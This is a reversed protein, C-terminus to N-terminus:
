TIPLNDIKEDTLNNHFQILEDIFIKNGEYADKFPTLNCSGSEQISKWVQNTLDSQYPFNYSEKLAEKEDKLHTFEHTIENLILKGSKLEIEVVIKQEDDKTCLISFSKDKGIFGELEGYYEVFGKRPSEYVKKELGNTSLSTVKGESLWEFFDIYHISNCALGWNSGKVSFSLIESPRIDDKLRRYLPVMRRPCNVWVKCDREEFLSLSKLLHETNQFLVKELLINNPKNIKSFIEEIISFRVHSPSAIIIFNYESKLNSFDDFFELNHITSNEIELARSKAIDLSKRNLDITDINLKAGVKCLSQLHRSGLNGAGVLLINEM